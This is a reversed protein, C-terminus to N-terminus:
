SPRTWDEILDSEREGGEGEVLFLDRQFIVFKKQQLEPRIVPFTKTPLFYNLLSSHFDSLTSRKRTSFRENIRLLKYNFTSSCNRWLDFKHYKEMSAFAEWQELMLIKRFNTEDFCIYLSSKGESKRSHKFRKQKLINPALESDKITLRFAM